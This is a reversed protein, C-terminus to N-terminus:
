GELVVFAAAYEACHTISAHIKKVGLREAAEGAKKYFFVVPAGSENRLVEVADPMFGAFGCGLAKVAAEKCCFNGAATLVGKVSILEREAETYNAEVFRASECAKKIRAIEIIDTGVGIIM